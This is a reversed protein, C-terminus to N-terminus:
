ILIGSLKGEYAFLASEGGTHLFVVNQGTKFFNNKSLGVLGALGKGSYVPDVLIGEFRAALKIAELTSEAPIGYGEGVYGDDVLIKDKDLPKGELLNVTSEALKYVAEIQKSKPQRVSIGMIPIGIELCHIGAVMGAQTGTSGTAQVIWDPKFGHSKSQEIIEQACVAYGLAGIENSGGGPIFYSKAGKDNLSNSVSLAQENMDLGAPRYEITAGFLQDLMLNGSHMYHTDCHEQPVRHELLVHAKLGCRCAAAVTQRVHNSQIAGQTVVTDAGQALAEGILFDLKRTKNGGTALGTCDDRKIWLNPGQLHDSLRKMPELPTPRHCLNANPFKDFNLTTRRYAWFYAQQMSVLGINDKGFM